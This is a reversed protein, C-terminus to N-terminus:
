GGTAVSLFLLRDWAPEVPTAAALLALAAGAAGYVLGAEAWDVAPTLERSFGAFRRGPRRLALTRELWATAARAFRDDGTAHFMRQHIHLRGAAGHCLFPNDIWAAVLDPDGFAALLEDDPPPAWRAAHVGLAVAADAPSGTARAAALMAGAVGPDGTCWAPWRRPVRRGDELWYCFQIDADADRQRWLWAGGADVLAAAGAIGWAAAGALVALIGPAGHAAGLSHIARAGSRAHEPLWADRPTAWAVGGPLREAAEDLRAVIDALMRRAAPVPMRELAYVGIGALEEPTGPFPARAVHEALLADIDELADGEAPAAESVHQVVWAVGPFGGFLSTGMRTEALAACARDVCAAADARYDGVGARSAYHFLLAFAAQGLLTPYPSAAAWGVAEDCVARVAALARERADRDVLPRWV